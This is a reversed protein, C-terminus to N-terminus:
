CGTDWRSFFAIVDDGDTGGDGNFDADGADWGTFFAIVDDGDVSGDDNWDAPCSPAACGLVRLEVADVAAELVSSLNQTGPSVVFNDSTTFRIKFQNTSVSFPLTFTKPVWGGHQEAGGNPGVQELTIWSGGNNGSVEVLLRDDDPSNGRNNSLWRAYSIQASGGSADMTPSTVTVINNDVDFSGLGTGARPDTSFMQGSGDFDTTPAAGNTDLQPGRVFGGSPTGTGTPVESAVWGRDTSFNDSFRVTTGSATVTAYTVAPAGVPSSTVGGGVAQASFWYAIQAGCPQAPLTAIYENPGTRTMPISTNAGTGIRYTLVGSNDIPAASLGIVNVRINVAANPQIATSPLGDPFAFDLLTVTPGPMNHETFGANIQQYHPTGNNINGDNDDLTLWDITIDPEILTGTHLP